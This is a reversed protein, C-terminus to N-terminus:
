SSHQTRLDENRISNFTDKNEKSRETDLGFSKDSQKTVDKNTRKWYGLRSLTSGFFLNGRRQGRSQGRSLM